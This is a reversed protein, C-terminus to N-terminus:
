LLLDWKEPSFFFGERPNLQPHESVRNGVGTDQRLSLHKSARFHVKEFEIQKVIKSIFNFL